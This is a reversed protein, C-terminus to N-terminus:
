GNVKTRPCYDGIVDLHEIVDDHIDDSNESTQNESSLSLASGVLGPQGEQGSRISLDIQRGELKSSEGPKQSSTRSPLRQIGLSSPDGDTTVPPARTSTFKLSQVHQVVRSSARSRTQPRPQAKSPAPAQAEPTDASPSSVQGDPPQPVFIATLGQQESPQVVELLLPDDLSIYTNRRVRVSPM